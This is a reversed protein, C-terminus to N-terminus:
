FPHNAQGIPVNAQYATITDITALQAQERLQLYLPDQLLEEPVTNTILCRITKGIEKLIDRRMGRITHCAQFYEETKDILASDKCFEGIYRLCEINQPAVIHSSDDMWNM